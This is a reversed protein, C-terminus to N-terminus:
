APIKDFQFDNLKENLWQKADDPYFSLTVLDYLLKGTETLMLKEDDVAILGGHRLRKITEGYDAEIPHGFVSQYEDLLLPKGDGITSTVFLTKLNEPEFRIVDEVPSAGSEVRNIYTAFGRHNRYVNYGLSSRATLGIGFQHGRLDIGATPLKQHRAAISDMRKFTHWRTQTYGLDSAVDRVAERWRMLRGLDFRETEKLKKAVPTSENLRLSYATVAHVGSRAVTEFDKRFIAEDQGPLGYILDINLIFGASLIRECADLASVSPNRRVTDLIDEQLSQVGMSIRKVGRKTLVRLHEDTISDPSAEVTHIDSETFPMRNAIAELVEDLLEPPLATPTGGGIFFQSVPTGPKVWELEKKLARVYRQMQDLDAGVKKAFCCYSCAYNCFPIHVYLRLKDADIQERDEGPCPEFMPAANPYIHPATYAATPTSGLAEAIRAYDHFKGSFTINANM